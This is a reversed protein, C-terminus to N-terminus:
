RQLWTDFFQLRSSAEYHLGQVQKGHALVSSLEILPIAHGERLLIESAQDTLAQRQANDLTAAAQQLLQDVPAPQRRNYNRGNVEYVTRVVDPDARTLNFFTLHMDGASQLAAIQSITSKNLRLDIGVLRLQQQVLELIPANQWYSLQLALRKGDRSRIGDAGVKWGAEELLQKAGEPDYKLLSSFDRYFPTSSALLATAPKQYRSIISRLQERDIAKVLAQRVKIDSYLPDTEDPTLNYVVGPNARTLLSIGQTELVAENQPVVATDVDIQGSLLSGLRVGSEPVIVFEIGDLWAKGKHTALSSEGSYAEHRALVVKQNHVFSKIVFPGSGILNGQCREAPPLALTSPALLGLSMTSTAQLFQANSQGFEIVVTNQDPTEINKLGALYTSGLVSRAGLAVINEYNAKVSAANLASGDSFKVGERLHFTFRRSEGDVEWRSALWPVIEGTKPDQDTLSDVVQRGVNLATNNGAQQPDICNPDGDLAVKLIGGAVPNAASTAAPTSAKDGCAALTVAVFLLALRAGTAIKLSTNLTM